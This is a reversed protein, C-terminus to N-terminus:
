RAPALDDIPSAGRAAHDLRHPARDSEDPYIDPRLVEKPIGTEREVLLVDEADVPKGDRLREYISAQSRGVLRGYASQSGVTRVAQALPTKLNAEIGMVSM